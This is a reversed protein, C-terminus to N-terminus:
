PSIQTNFQAKYMLVKKVYNQTENFPPIGQYKKVNGPGANYAALALKIDKFTDLQERMYAAGAMINAEPHYPDILKLYEQTAPMIQMLGEAGAHSREMPDFDSEVKIMAVILEPELSYTISAKEITHQWKNINAIDRSSLKKIDDIVLDNKSNVNHKQKTKYVFVNYLNPLQLHRASPSLSYIDMDKILNINEKKINDENEKNHPLSKTQKTSLNAKKIEIHKAHNPNKINNTHNNNHKQHILIKQKEEYTSLTQKNHSSSNISNSPSNKQSHIKPAQITNVEVYTSLVQSQIKQSDITQANAGITPIIFFFLLLYLFIDKLIYLIKNALYIM